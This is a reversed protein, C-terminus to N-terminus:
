RAPVPGILREIGRRARNLAEPGPDMVHAANAMLLMADIEFALQGPDAGDVEGTRQADDVAAVLLGM